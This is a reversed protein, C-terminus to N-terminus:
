RKKWPTSMLQSGQRIVAIYNGSPIGRLEVIHQGQSFFQSTQKIQNGTIDFISISILGPNQVHLSLGCPISQVRLNQTHLSVSTIATNTTDKKTTDPAPPEPEYEKIEDANVIATSDGIVVRITRSFEERQDTEPANATVYVIANENGAIANNGSKTLYPSSEKGNYTYSVATGFMTTDPLLNSITGNLTVKSNKFNRTISNLGKIFQVTITDDLEKFGTVAPATAVIRATGYSKFDYIYSDKGSHNYCSAKVCKAQKVDVIDPDLSKLTYTSGEVTKTASGLLWEFLTATGTYNDGVDNSCNGGYRCVLDFFRNVTQKALPTITVISQSNDEKSSIIAFGAKHIKLTEGDISVVDNDSSEYSCGNKLIDTISAQEETATQHAFSCTGSRHGKTLSDNWSQANQQLYNKVITGSKTYAADDLMKGSTLAEDEDFMASSENSGSHRFSWNCNSIKNNNMFTLWDKTSGEDADGKGDANTTGWESIFVANGANMAATARQGYTGVGHSGAYFHLVYAINTANVGGYNTLQSWNPTGVLILNETNQRIERSVNTAYSQISSWGQKVPENFVEYIVNPVDAYKESMKQFFTRAYNEESTARHSHWDLIIYVDNEIAAEIMKDALTYYREPSSIYAYSADMANGTGGDSSYYQVGMAFRFVDIKLNQVAWKIAEKNYYMSGTADSWYLSIGRLMAQSGNKAGIIKNGQTHLAGYYSVPGVRLPKANLADAFSHTCAFIGLIAIIKFIKM